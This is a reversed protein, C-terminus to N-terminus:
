CVVVIKPRGHESSPSRPYCSLSCPYPSLKSSGRRLMAWTIQGESFYHWPHVHRLANTLGLLRRNPLTRCASWASQLHPTQLHTLLQPALIHTCDIRDPRRRHHFSHLNEPPRTPRKALTLTEHIDNKIITM